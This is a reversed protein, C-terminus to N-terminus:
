QEIDRELLQEAQQTDQELQARLVSPSDFRQEARLRHVFSVDLQSGYLDEHLRFIHIELTTRTGDFTPRTGINMMAHKQEMTGALRVKVAYVGPAPILKMTDCPVINATPFGLGTGVHEGRVVQGTLTYPYGLSVAASQVDGALLQTRVLSSCVNGEQPLAEVDIGLEQGYRVYDAFGEQRNHGFRNDYGTLLLHVSLREQLVRAMFERASLRRLEDTFPIVVCRDIGTKSLLLLKEELSTLVMEQRPSRDFTIACSLLGRAHAAATLRSLVFRHGSHVGDFMGITAAYDQQSHVPTCLSSLTLTEM